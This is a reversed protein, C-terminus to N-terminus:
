YYNYRGSTPITITNNQCAKCLPGLTLGNKECIRQSESWTELLFDADPIPYNQLETGRLARFPSLIPMVGMNSLSEVAELTMHMDELGVILLSRVEGSDGFIKVANKLSEMYTEKHILGKAPMMKRAIVRDWLEINIGIESVGAQKLAVLKNNTLPTTMLYIPRKTYASIGSVMELYRDWLESFYCGGTLLIHRFNISQEQECFDILEKIGNLSNFSFSKKQSIECFHCGKRMLAYKCGKLISVGLRDTYLNGFNTLPIGDRNLKGLFNPAPIFDVEYLKEGRRSITLASNLVTLLYPSKGNYHRSLPVSAHVDNPLILDLGGAIGKSTAYELSAQGIFTEAAADLTIGNVLLNFKDKAIVKFLMDANHCTKCLDNKM